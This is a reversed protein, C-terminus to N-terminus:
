AGINYFLMNLIRLMYTYNAEMINASHLGLDDKSNFELLLGDIGLYRFYSDGNAHTNYDGQGYSECDLNYDRRMSSVIHEIKTHDKIKGSYACTMENAVVVHGLCHLDLAVDPSFTTITDVIYQMEIESGASAGKDADSQVSWGPTPYNRNINVNNYNNRSNNDFGWPNIVPIVVVKCNDKIAGLFTNTKAHGECLDKIFRATVIACERPDSTPGHENAGIYITASYSSKTSDAFVYRNVYLEGSSDHGMVTKTLLQPYKDCLADLYDYIDQTKMNDSDFDSDPSTNAPLQPYPAYVSERFNWICNYGDYKILAMLGKTKTCDILAFEVDTDAAVRLYHADATATFKTTIDGIAGTGGIITDITSGNETARTSLRVKGAKLHVLYTKGKEITAPYTAYGANVVFSQMSEMRAIEETNKDVQYKTGAYSDNEVISFLSTSDATIRLYHADKSATFIMKMPADTEKPFITELNEGNETELTSIGARGFEFDIYYTKGSEIEYPVSGYGDYKFNIPIKVQESIKKTTERVSKLTACVGDAIAIDFAYSQGGNAIRLYHADASAVFETTYPASKETAEDATGIIRDIIEGDATAKTFLRITGSTISVKYTKGSEIEYPVSVFDENGSFTTIAGVTNNLELIEESLKGFEKTAAAQSMVKDEADGTSQVVNSKDFKKELEETATKQSMVKDEASGTTQAISSKDVKNKELDSVRAELGAKERIADVIQKGTEDTMLAKVAM